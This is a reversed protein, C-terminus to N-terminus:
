HAFIPRRADPYTVIIEPGTKGYGPGNYPRAALRWGMPRGIAVGGPSAIMGAVYFFHGSFRAFGFEVL